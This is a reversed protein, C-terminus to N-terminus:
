CLVVPTLQNEEGKRPAEHRNRKMTSQWLRYIFPFRIIIRGELFARKKLFITLALRSLVRSHATYTERAVRGHSKVFAALHLAQECVLYLELHKISILWFKKQSFAPVSRCNTFNVTTSFTTKIRVVQRKGYSKDPCIFNRHIFYFYLDSKFTKLVDWQHKIYSQLQTKWPQAVHDVPFLFWKLKRVSWLLVLGLRLKGTCSKGLGRECPRRRVRPFSTSSKWRKAGIV